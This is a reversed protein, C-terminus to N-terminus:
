CRPLNALLRCRQPVWGALRREDDVKDHNLTQWWYWSAQPDAVFLTPDGESM